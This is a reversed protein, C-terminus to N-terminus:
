KDSPEFHVYGARGQNLNIIPRGTQPTKTFKLALASLTERGQEDLKFVIERRERETEEEIMLSGRLM